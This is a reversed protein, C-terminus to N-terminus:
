RLGGKRRDIFRKAKYDFKPLIGRPVLEVEVRLNLKSKLEDQIVRPAEGRGGAEKMELKIKIENVGKEDVV